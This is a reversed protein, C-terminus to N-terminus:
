EQEPIVTYVTKLGEGNKVVSFAKLNPNAELHVKLQKKVTTPVRYEQENSVIYEFTFEKNEKDIVTKSFLEVDVPVKELDAINLTTPPIYNIAEEKLNAMKISEKMPNEIGFHVNLQLQNKDKNGLSWYTNNVM